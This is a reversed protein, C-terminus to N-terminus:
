QTRLKPQGCQVCYVWISHQQNPFDINKSNLFNEGKQWEVSPPVKLMNEEKCANDALPVTKGTMQESVKLILQAAQM